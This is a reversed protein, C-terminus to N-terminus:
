NILRKIRFTKSIEWFQGDFDFLKINYDVKALNTIFRHFTNKFVTRIDSLSLNQSQCHKEFKHTNKPYKFQIKRYCMTDFM